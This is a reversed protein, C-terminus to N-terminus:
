AVVRSHLLIVVGVGFALAAAMFVAQLIGITGALLDRNMFDRVSNTLSAGPFLIYISGVVVINENLPIGMEKGAFALFTQIFAAILTEMFYKRGKSATSYVIVQSIMVIAITSILDVLSGGIALGFFGCAIAYSILSVRMTHGKKNEIGEIDKLAHDLCIKKDVFERSFNNIDAIKEMDTNINKIKRISTIADGNYYFSAMIYSYTCVVQVDDINECAILMREMTDETRYIEAGNALMIEGAKIVMKMAKQAKEYTEIKHM